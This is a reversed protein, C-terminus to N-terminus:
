RLEYRLQLQGAPATYRYESIVYSTGDSKKVRRQRNDIQHGRRRVDACRSRWAYAGAITALERGDIWVNPRERFYAELRDTLSM